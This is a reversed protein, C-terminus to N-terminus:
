LTEHVGHYLVPNKEPLYQLIYNRSVNISQNDDILVSLAPLPFVFGVYKHSGTHPLAFRLAIRGQSPFM